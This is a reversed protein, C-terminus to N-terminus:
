QSWPVKCRTHSRQQVLHKASAEVAGSGIPLHRERFSPSRMRIANPTFYGCEHQIVASAETSGPRTADFWEVVPKAGTQWLHGLATKAWVKAGDGLDSRQSRHRGAMSSALAHVSVFTGAQM